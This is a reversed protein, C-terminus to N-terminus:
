SQHRRAGQSGGLVRVEESCGSRRWAGRVEGSYGSKRQAGQNGRHAKFSGTQSGGALSHEGVTSQKTHGEGRWEM